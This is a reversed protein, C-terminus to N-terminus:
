PARPVEVVDGAHLGDSTVEVLGSDGFVGPVVVVDERRADRVVRVVFTGDSRAVLSTIPVALVSVRVQDTISARV